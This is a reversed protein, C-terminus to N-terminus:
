AVTMVYILVLPLQEGIRMVVGMTAFVVVLRQQPVRTAQNVVIKQEKAGNMVTMTIVKQHLRTKVIGGPRIVHVIVVAILTLLVIQRRVNMHLIKVIVTM